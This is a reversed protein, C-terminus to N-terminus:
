CERCKCAPCPHHRGAILLIVREPSLKVGLYRCIEGLLCRRLLRGPNGLTAVTAASRHDPTVLDVTKGEAFACHLVCRM